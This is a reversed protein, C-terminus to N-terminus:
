LQLLGTLTVLPDFLVQNLTSTDQSCGRRLSAM